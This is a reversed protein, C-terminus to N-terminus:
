VLYCHVKDLTLYVENLRCYYSRTINEFVSLNCFYRNNLAPM